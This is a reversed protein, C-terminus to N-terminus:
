FNVQPANEAGQKAKFYPKKEFDFMNATLNNPFKQIYANYEQAKENFKRREVTIRNESGALETMLATFNQNAQLQPYNEQVVMLRSLTNNLASGLEAQAQDFKELNEPTLQDADLTISTAKARAEMVKTLTEQEHKAYGKVTNVLNPILDARRQYVNEVQAWQADVEERKEIMSNYSCSSMSLAVLAILLYLIGNKMKKLFNRNRLYFYHLVPFLM